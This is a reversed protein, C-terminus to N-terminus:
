VGRINMLHNKVGYIHTYITGVSRLPTLYRHLLSPVRKPTNQFMYLLSAILWLTYLYSPPVASTYINKWVLMFSFNFM